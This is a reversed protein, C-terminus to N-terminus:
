EHEGSHRSRPPRTVYRCSLIALPTTTTQVVLLTQRVRRTSNPTWHASQPANRRPRAPPASVRPSRAPPTRPHPHAPPASHPLPRNTPKPPAPQGNSHSVFISMAGIKGASIGTKDRSLM